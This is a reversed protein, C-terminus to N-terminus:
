DFEKLIANKERETLVYNLKRLDKVLKVTNEHIDDFIKVYKFLLRAMVMVCVVLAALLFNTILLLEAM